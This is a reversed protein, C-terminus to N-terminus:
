AGAKQGTAKAILRDIKKCLDCRMDVGRVQSIVCDSHNRASPPENEARFEKLTGLMEIELGSLNM